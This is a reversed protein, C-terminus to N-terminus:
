QMNENSENTLKKPKKDLCHRQYFDTLVSFITEIEEDNHAVPDITGYEEVNVHSRTSNGFEYRHNHLFNLKVMKTTTKSIYDNEIKTNTEELEEGLDDKDLFSLENKIFNINYIEKIEDSIGSLHRYDIDKDIDMITKYLNIFRKKFEGKYLDYEKETSYAYTYLIYCKTVDTLANDVGNKIDDYKAYTGM